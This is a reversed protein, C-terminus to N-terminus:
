IVAWGDDGSLCMRQGYWSFRVDIQKNDAEGVVIYVGQLCSRPRIGHQM